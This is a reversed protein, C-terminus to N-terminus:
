NIAPLGGMDHDYLRSNLPPVNPNLANELPSTGFHRTCKFILQKRLATTGPMVEFPGQLYASWFRYGFPMGLMAAKTAYPFQIYLPYTNGELGMFKGLDGNPNLGPIGGPSPLSRIRRLVTENWRTLVVSVVGEEGQFMYDLPTGGGMDNFLPEFQSDVVIRPQKEATGLYQIVRTPTFGGAAPTASTYSLTPTTTVDTPAVYIHAPGTCFHQAM